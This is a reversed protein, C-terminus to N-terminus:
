VVLGMVKQRMYVLAPALGSASSAPVLQLQELVAWLSTTSPFSGPVRSGEELQVVLSTQQGTLVCLSLWYM